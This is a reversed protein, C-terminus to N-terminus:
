RKARAAPGRSRLAREQSAVGRYAADANLIGHGLRPDWGQMGPKDATSRLINRMTAPSRENSDWQTRLAAIVGATVACAASTGTNSLFADHDERFLSPACIDPKDHELRSQGPGQSSYGVWMGDVRVAGTTLVARHSNAGLISRGPGRDRVGCRSRPCFQGCNGACFVVDIGLDAEEDILRSITKLFPHDPNNTYDGRPDSSSDYIAWANVFVWRSEFRGIAKLLKIDTFMRHYAANAISTFEKIQTIRPPLLPCDFINAQPAISLVNRALMMGHRGATTGPQRLEEQRGSPCEFTWGGVYNGALQRADIGEDIIVVNVNRGRNGGLVDAHILDLAASRNGFTPASADDPCWHEATDFPLDIGMGLLGDERRLAAVSRFQQEAEHGDFEVSVVLEDPEPSAVQEGELVLTWCSPLAVVRYAPRSFGAREWNLLQDLHAQVGRVDAARARPAYSTRLEETAKLVVYHRTTEHDSM